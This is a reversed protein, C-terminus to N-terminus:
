VAASITVSQEESLESLDRSNGVETRVKVVKGATFPGITNGAVKDAPVRQFDADVGVVQWLLELVTAHQGTAPDYTIGLSLGTQVVSTIELTGPVPTSEETHVQALADGKETGPLFESKWAQYWDKNWRDLKRGERKVASRKARVIGGKEERAMKLAPLAAYRARYAAATVGRITIALRPPVAAARQANLEEWIVVTRETRREISSEGDQQIDDAEDVRRQLPDEDPVESDLRQAIGVNMSKFFAHEAKVDRDADREAGDAPDFAAVAAVVTDVQDAHSDKGNGGGAFGDDLAWVGQTEQGRVIVVQAYTAM